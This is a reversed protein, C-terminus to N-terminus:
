HMQKVHGISFHFSVFTMVDAVYKLVCGLSVIIGRCWRASGLPGNRQSAKEAGLWVTRENTYLEGSAMQLSM